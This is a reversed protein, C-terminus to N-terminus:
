DKIIYNVYANVPRTEASIRPVGHVGDTVPSQVHTDSPAFGDGNALRAGGGAVSDSRGIHHWHGQFADSQFSGVERERNGGPKIATRLSVNPDQGSAEGTTPSFDVGRLFLGRLDPLNFFGQNTSGGWYTGIVAWLRPFANTPFARGDCLLWGEPVANGMGAFAVVTGAPVGNAAQVAFPAPLIQQRPAVPPRNSVAVEVFRNASAFAGLISRGQADVPGLMVNFYGQVVPLLPGHGAGSGGDFVQPGWVQNGNTPADYISVRLEYDATPVPSGDANALRGQYNILPPVAQGGLARSLEVVMLLLILIVRVM